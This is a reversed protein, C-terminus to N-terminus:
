YGTKRESWRKTAYGAAYMQASEPYWMRNFPTDLAQKVFDDSTDRSRYFDALEFDTRTWSKSPNFYDTGSRHFGVKAEPGLYRDAGAVLLLTCASACNEMTVTDLNQSQILRAMQMGEYAYGGPGEVQVLTLKPKRKLAEDLAAFSGFGIEGRVTIRGLIPDHVVEAIRLRDNVTDLWGAVWDGAIGLTTTVSYILVVIGFVFVALPALFGGGDSQRRIASRMMSVCWWVVGLPTVSLLLIALWQRLVFNGSYTTPHAVAYILAWVIVLWGLMALGGGFLTYGVGSEGRWMRLVPELPGNLKRSPSDTSSISTSRIERFPPVPKRRPIHLESETDDYPQDIVNLNSPMPALVHADGRKRAAPYYATRELWAMLMMADKSRVYGIEQRLSHENFFHRKSKDLKKFDDGHIKALREDSRLSPIIKRIELSAIWIHNRSSEHIELTSAKYRASWTKLPGFDSM